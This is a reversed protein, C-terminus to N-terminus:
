HRHQLFEFWHGGSLHKKNNKGNSWPWSLWWASHWTALLAKLFWTAVLAKLHKCLRHTSFSVQKSAKWYTSWIPTNCGKNKEMCSCGTSKTENLACHKKKWLACLAKAKGVWVLPDAMFFTTRAALAVPNSAPSTAQKKDLSLWSTHMRWMKERFSFNGFCQTQSSICLWSPTGKLAMKAGTKWQLLLLPTVVKVGQCHCHCSWNWCFFLACAAHLWKTRGPHELVCHENNFCVTSTAQACLAIEQLIRYTEREPMNISVISKQKCEQKWAYLAPMGCANYLKM